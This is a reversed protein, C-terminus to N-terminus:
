VGKPPPCPCMRVGLFPDAGFVFCFLGEAITAGKGQTRRSIEAWIILNTSRGAPLAVSAAARRQATQLAFAFRFTSPTVRTGFRFHSHVSSLVLCRAAGLRCNVALRVKDYRVRTHRANRSRAASPVTACRAWATTSYCCGNCETAVMQPVYSATTLAYAQSVRRRSRGCTGPEGRPADLPWRTGDPHDGHRHARM